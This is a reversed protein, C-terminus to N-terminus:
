GIGIEEGGIWVGKIEWDPSFRILDARKATELSGLEAEQGILRAPVLSAMAFADCLPTGVVEAMSRVGRFLTAAAGALLGEATRPVGQRVHCELGGLLFREGEGIGAGATADSVLAIGERGKLSFAEGLREPTVHFGDAILECVVGPTELAAEALGKRPPDTKRLSSMANHLHTVQRIGAAFGALAEEYTADSHGASVSVGAADLVQVARLSGPLEPAMTVRRIIGAHRILSFIEETVPNRVFEPAHAGRRAPSFWPGEVHVGALRACGPNGKWEEAASLFAALREPSSAVSTLLCTTTGRTAHHSLITRFSDGSAEMADRGLAGHLHIDVLGPAVYDGLCDIVADGPHCFGPGVERIVGDEIRVHGMVIGKDPPLILRANALVLSM